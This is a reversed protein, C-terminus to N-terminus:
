NSGVLTQLSDVNDITSKQELEGFEEKLKQTPFQFFSYIEKM